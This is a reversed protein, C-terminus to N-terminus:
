LIGSTEKAQILKIQLLIQKSIFYTVDSVYWYRICIHMM